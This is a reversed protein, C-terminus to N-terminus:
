STSSRRRAWRRHLRRGQGSGRHAGPDLVERRPQFHAHVRRGHTSCYTAQPHRADRPHDRIGPGARQRHLNRGTTTPRPSATPKPDLENYDDDPKEALGLPDLNCHLHGRMRFARIMMIARVSDLTAKRLADTDISEGKQVAKAAIKGGMVKEVAPWDGDLASVLEGNAAQPWDKRAWSPGSAKRQVDDANDGLQDFFARWEPDVSGPDKEYAAQLQEIFQANGGYLFSTQEFVDNADTKAM